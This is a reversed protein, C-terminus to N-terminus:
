VLTIETGEPSGKIAKELVKTDAKLIRTKLKSREIV